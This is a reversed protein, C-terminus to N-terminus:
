WSKLEITSKIESYLRPLTSGKPNKILIEKLFVKLKKDGIEKEKKCLSQINLSEPSRLINLVINTLPIGFELNLHRFFDTLYIYNKTTVTVFIELEIQNEILKHLNKSVTSWKAGSRIKEFRTGFDDISASISVYKFNKWLPILDVGKIKLSTLNSNYVLRIKPAKEKVLLELLELHRFDILPEGGAIYIEELGDTHQEIYDILGKNEDPFPTQVEKTIPDFGWSTSYNHDCYICKLNCFNSHRIGIFKLEFNPMEGDELMHIPSDSHQKFAKNSTERMSQFGEAEDRKCTGCDKPWKNNLLKLRSTKISECNWLESPTSESLNGLPASDQAQCCLMVKGNQQIEQHIFPLICFTKSKNM